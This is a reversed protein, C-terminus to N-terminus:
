SPQGAQTHSSIAAPTAPRTTSPRNSARGDPRETAGNSRVSSNRTGAKAAPILMWSAKKAPMCPKKRAKASHSCAPSCKEGSFAPSVATANLTPLKTAAGTATGNAWRCPRRMRAPPATSITAPMPPTARAAECTPRFPLGHGITGPRTTAPAPSARSIMGSTLTTSAATGASTAPPADPSNLVACCSPPASPTASSPVTKKPYRPPCENSAASTWVAGYAIPANASHPTRDSSSGRM